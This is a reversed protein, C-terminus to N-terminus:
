PTWPRGPKYGKIGNKVIILSPSEGLYGIMPVEQEWIDLIQAFLENRRADSPEVNTQDELAWIQRIWHDNPAAETESARRYLGWAM